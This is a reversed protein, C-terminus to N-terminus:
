HRSHLQKRKRSAHPAGPRAPAALSPALEECAVCQARGDSGEQGRLRKHCRGVAQLPAAFCRFRHLRSRQLRPLRHTQTAQPRCGLVPYSGSHRGCLVSWRQRRPNHRPPTDQIPMLHCDHSLRRPAIASGGERTELGPRGLPGTCSREPNRPQGQLPLSPGHVSNQPAEAHCLLM